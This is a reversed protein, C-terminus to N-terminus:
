YTTELALGGLAAQVTVTTSGSGINQQATSSTYNSSTSPRFQFYAITAVGNPNALGHLTVQNSVINNATGTSVTPLGPAASLAISAFATFLVVGWGVPRTATKM